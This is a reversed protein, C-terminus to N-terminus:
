SLPTLFHSLFTKASLLTLSPPSPEKPALASIGQLGRHLGLHPLESGQLWSSRTLVSIWEAAWAPTSAMARPFTKYVVFVWHCLLSRAPARAQPFTCMCSCFKQCFQSGIPSGRQPLVINKFSQMWRCVWTPATQSSRCHMPFVWLPINGRPPVGRWLLHVTHSALLLLPSGAAVEM